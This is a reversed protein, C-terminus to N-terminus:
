YREGLFFYITCFSLNSQSPQSTSKKFAEGMKHGIHHVSYRLDQIVARVVGYFLLSPDERLIIEPRSCGRDVFDFIRTISSDKPEMTSCTILVAASTDLICLPFGRTFERYTGGGHWIFIRTGQNEFHVLLVNDAWEM